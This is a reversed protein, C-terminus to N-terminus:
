EELYSSIVRVFNTIVDWFIDLEEESHFARLSQMMKDMGAIEQAKYAIALRVGSPTPFIHVTKANKVHKVREILGKQELKVIIQTIAGPTRGLSQALDTNVIGPNEYITILLHREVVTTQLDNPSELTSIYKEYQNVFRFLTDARVSYEQFIM